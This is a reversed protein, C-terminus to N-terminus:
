AVAREGIALLVELVYAPCHVLQIYSFRTVEFGHMQARHDRERDREFDAWRTHWRRGDAEILRGWLAILADSCHRAGTWWPLVPQRDYRPLEPHDLVGYLARELVSTPPVYADPMREEILAGLLQSGAVRGRAAARAAQDMSELCLRQSVLLDDVAAELRVPAVLGALDVLTQEITTVRIGRVSTTPVELRHRVVALRSARRSGRPASLEIAARPFGDFGHLAAASRGSLAANPVSLEAAKAQRLWTPANGPLAYVLDDLVIWQGTERRYHIMRDTGGCRKAQTHSFAGHQKRALADIARDFEHSTM